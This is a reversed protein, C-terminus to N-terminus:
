SQGKRLLSAAPKDLYITAKEHQQLISAPVQPTVPGEIAGQVAKAKREDPVSCIIANSKVIQRISMSIAQKPVADFTPFWGEGFQQQRCADDLEVIIYPEETQFDAPPDNFALHGNEGIGIFAVDIPRKRILEGLRKCEAHCDGEASIFNFAAPPKPLRDVFREKLYKRFSAGHTMPMGVYEDLHFFTIKGWDIGPAQVLHSLMEFQSAGTALIVNAKGRQTLAQRIFEAGDAAAQRGLEDKSSFTKINM